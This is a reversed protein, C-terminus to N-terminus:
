PTVARLTLATPSVSPPSRIEAEPMTRTFGTGTPPHPKNIEDGRADCSHVCTGALNGEEACHECISEEAGRVEDALM